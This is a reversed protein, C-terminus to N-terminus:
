KPMEVQETTQLYRILDFLERRKLQQLQGDPMMSKPSVKRIEIDEKAIVLRPQDVTKLVLTQNNEEAIVGSLVRGDETQVVVMRYGDPVDASPDLSNLLFYDLNRRNSGTLDPGIKGGDGYMLHCAGCTKAFVLRGRSPDATSLAKDTIMKKYRAMESKVNQKMEKIEGYAKTFDDGMLDRLSRALYSPIDKRPVTKSKLGEILGNAYSKRTALTEIVARQTPPDMRSYQSLLTEPAANNEFIGLARIADLRLEATQTLELLLDGLPAHRQAVLARLAALRRAPDANPDRLLSMSEAIVEKDGFVQSLRNALSRIRDNSGGRLAKSLEPWGEPSPVDRRGELGDLMGQLLAARTAESESQRVTKVLLALTAEEDLASARAATLSSLVLIGCTAALVHKYIVTIM